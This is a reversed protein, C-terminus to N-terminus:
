VSCYLCQYYLEQIGDTRLYADVSLLTSSGIVRASITTLYIFYSLSAMAHNYNQSVSTSVLGPNGDMRVLEAWVLRLKFNFGQGCM